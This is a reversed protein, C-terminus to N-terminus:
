WRQRGCHPPAVSRDCRLIPSPQSAHEGEAVEELLDARHDGIWRQPEVRGHQGLRRQRVGVEVRATEVGLQEVDGTLSGIGVATSSAASGPQRVCYAGSGLKSTTLAPSPIGDITGLLM